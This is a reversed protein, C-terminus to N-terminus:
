QAVRAGAYTERVQQLYKKTFKPFTYGTGRCKFCMDGDRQNWSFRGSGGCRSCTKMLEKHNKYINTKAIKVAKDPLAKVRGAETLELVNPFVALVLEREEEALKEFEMKWFRAFAENGTLEEIVKFETGQPFHLLSYCSATNGRCYSHVGDSLVYGTPEDEVAYIKLNYQAM